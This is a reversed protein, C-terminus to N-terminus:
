LGKKQQAILQKIREKYPDSPMLVDAETLVRTQCSLRSGNNANNDGVLRYELNSMETVGNQNKIIVMCTTCQAKGGCRHKLPIHGQMAARLISHGNKITIEKILKEDKYFNVKAM